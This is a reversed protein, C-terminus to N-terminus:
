SGSATADTVPSAREPPPAPLRADSGLYAEIVAPNSRIEAATGVAILQGYNLVYIRDCVSTIFQLDHDIVVVGAGIRRATERVHRVMAASETDSMGATPEDLLLFAPVLAAARALELMRQAGYDLTAAPHDRREWLSGDVLLADVDPAPQDARYRAAALAAIAVNERVPLRGFLRLNQFTRAVGVRAISAPAAGTLDAGNLRVSGAVPRVVGTIVNLLTTKGAGNPGILGVVEDSRVQMSVDELARFGGFEVTIGQATLTVPPRPSQAAAPAEAVADGSPRRLRRELWEDLEWDGLLGEPRLLMFGVMAGGLFLSSLGPRLLWGLAAVSGDGALFRTLEHGMTIVVVGVVAGTVSRLGGVILMTLSLLTLDFFFFSPTISGLLQVRLTAALAVILVSLMFAALWWIQANVGSAAAALRDERSAKAWRGAGTLQFWRAGIVSAVLVAYIWSRDAFRPIFSLGGGGETLTIWNVAVAHTVFLLALTIMTAAISGVRCVAAGVVLGVVLTLGVAVLTAPLPHLEVSALGWPANPIFLMKREAPIALVAVTYGSIAAFGLHGFSLIGTNGIFVQLGVVLIVNVLMQSVLIQRAGGGGITWLLGGGAVVAVMLLSGVAALLFRRAPM